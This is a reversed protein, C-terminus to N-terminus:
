KGSSNDKMLIKESMTIKSVQSNNATRISSYLVCAFWIVLGVLPNVDLYGGDKSLSMSPKCQTGASNNMASWTLYMTYLTILSAQLLGSRPQAQQVAPLISLVSLFICVALNTSIFFKQLGCGEEATYHMYFLVFGAAALIYHLLTFFVLGTFFRFENIYGNNSHWKSNIIQKIQLSCTGVYWWKSEDNEMKEVWSEAWSHAFDLMLILQILIFLFGGVIGFYMWVTLYIM